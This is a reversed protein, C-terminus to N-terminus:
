YMAYLMQVYLTNSSRCSDNSMCVSYAGDADVSLRVYDAASSQHHQQDHHHDSTDQSSEMVNRTVAESETAECYEVCVRVCVCVCVCVCVQLCVM